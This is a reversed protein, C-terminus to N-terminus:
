GHQPKTAHVVPSRETNAEPEDTTLGTTVSLTGEEAELIQEM